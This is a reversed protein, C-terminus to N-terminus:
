VISPQLDVPHRVGLLLRLALPPREDELRHQARLASGPLLHFGTFFALYCFGFIGFATLMLIRLLYVRGLASLVCELSWICKWFTRLRRELGSLM